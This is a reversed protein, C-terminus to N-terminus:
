IDLLSESHAGKVKDRAHKARDAEIEAIRRAIDPHTRLRRRAAGVSDYGHKRQYAPLFTELVQDVSYTKGSEKTLHDATAVLLPDPLVESRPPGPMWTGAMLAAVAEKAAKVPDDKAGTASYANQIVTAAGQAALLERTGNDPAKNTDITVVASGFAETFQVTVMAGAITTNAIKRKVPATYLGNGPGTAEDTDATM